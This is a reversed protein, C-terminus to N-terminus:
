DCFYGPYGPGPCVNGWTNCYSGYANCNVNGLGNHYVTCHVAQARLGGHWVLVQAQPDYEASTLEESSSDLPKAVQFAFLQSSM